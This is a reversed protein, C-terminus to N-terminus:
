EISLRQQHWFGALLRACDELHAQTPCDFSNLYESGVDITGIFAIRPTTWFLFSIEARASALAILYGSIPQPMVWTSQRGQAFARSTLGKTILFSPYAPARGYIGVSRYM